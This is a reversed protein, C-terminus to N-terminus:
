RSRPAKNLVRALSADVNWELADADFEEKPLNFYNEPRSIRATNLEIYHGKGFAKIHAYNFPMSTDFGRLYAQNTVSPSALAQVELPAQPSAGLFHIDKNAHMKTIENAIRIRANAAELTEIMHRPIGLSSIWRQSAAWEASKLVEEYTQGQVVFMFSFDWAFQEHANPHGHLFFDIFRQAKDITDEMNGLTDPVVIESVEFQYAMNILTEWDFDVGEAAGNDLIVFQEPDQCLGLYHMYYKTSEEACQPLMLQYTTKKTYHLLDYPPILALQM